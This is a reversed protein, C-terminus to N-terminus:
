AHLNVEAVLEAFVFPKTLYDDGGAAFGALRDPVADRATLFIVPTKVNRARIAQVVDRGDADPLGIDVILVDASRVAILRLFEAASAAGAVTFGDEGLGRAILARLEADDELVLVSLEAM